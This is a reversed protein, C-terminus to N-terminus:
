DYCRLRGTERKGITSSEQKAGSPNEQRAYTVQHARVKRCGNDDMFPFYRCSLCYDVKKEQTKVTGQRGVAIVSVVLGM